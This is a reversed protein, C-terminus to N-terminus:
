NETSYIGTKPGLNNRHARLNGAKQNGRLITIIKSPDSKSPTTECFLSYMAFSNANIASIYPKSFGSFM